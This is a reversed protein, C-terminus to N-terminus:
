FHYCFATLCPLGRSWGRKRFSEGSAWTTETEQTEQRSSGAAKGRVAELKCRCRVSRSDSNVAGREM